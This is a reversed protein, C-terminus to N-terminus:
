PPALIQLQEPKQNLDLYLRRPIRDQQGFM